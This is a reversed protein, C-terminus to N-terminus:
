GASAVATITLTASYLGTPTSSPMRLDLTAGLVTTGLGQAAGATALPSGATLGPDALTNGKDLTMGASLDTPLILYSYSSLEYTRADVDGYM